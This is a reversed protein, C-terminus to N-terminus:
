EAGWGREGRVQETLADVLVALVNPEGGYNLVPTANGPSTANHLYYRFSVYGSRFHGLYAGNLWMDSNKYVGDFDLWILKGEDAAAVTFTQLPLTTPHPYAALCRDQELPM